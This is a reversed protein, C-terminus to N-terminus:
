EVGAFSHLLPLFVFRARYLFRVRDRVLTLTIIEIFRIKDIRLRKRCSRVDAIAEM